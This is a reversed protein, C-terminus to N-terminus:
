GHLKRKRATTDSELLELARASGLRELLQYRDIGEQWGAIVGDDRLKSLGDRTLNWMEPAADQVISVALNPNAGCPWERTLWWRRSSHPPTTARPRPTDDTVHAEGHEDVISVTGVYAM